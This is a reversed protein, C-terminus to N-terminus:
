CRRSQGMFSGVSHGYFHQDDRLRTVSQNCVGLLIFELGVVVRIRVSQGSGGPSGWLRDLLTDGFTNNRM